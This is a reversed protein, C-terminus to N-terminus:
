THLSAPGSGLTEEGRNRGRANLPCAEPLRQHTWWNVGCRCVLADDFAHDCCPVAHPFAAADESVAVPPPAGSMVVGSQMATRQARKAGQRPPTCVAPATARAIPLKAFCFCGPAETFSPSFRHEQRSDSRAGTKPGYPRSPPSGKASPSSVPSLRADARCRRVVPGRELGGLDRRM